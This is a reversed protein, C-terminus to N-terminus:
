AIRGRAMALVAARVEEVAIHEVGRMDHIAVNGPGYPHWIRPPNNNGFLGITPAGSAAALHMPGSDHGLFFRAHSLVAASQRPNLRGCLNLGRGPWHRLLRQTRGLDGPAGIGVVAHDSLDPGLQDFLAHWRDRGWDNIAAKGGINVAVFPRGELPALETTATNREAETLRLDWNARDELDIAELPALTRALRSAEPEYVGPSEELRDHLDASTPAGVIKRVGGWRLFRLDRKVADLGRPAALYVGRDAGTARLKLLLRLLQARSRTGVQYTLVGHILGSGSLVSELAPANGAVPENTLVLRRHDPYARAIAHFCPLAVVTDGLSGLRYIVLTKEAVRRWGPM